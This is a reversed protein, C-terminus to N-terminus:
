ETGSAAQIALHAAAMRAGQTLPCDPGFVKEFMQAAIAIDNRAEETRGQALLAKGLYYYGNSLVNSSDGPQLVAQSERIAKEADAEAAKTEGARLEASARIIYVGPFLHAGEGGSSIAAQAIAMAQNILDLAKKAEGRQTAIQSREI